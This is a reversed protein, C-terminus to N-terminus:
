KLEHRSSEQRQAEKEEKWKQEIRDMRTVLEDRKTEIVEAFRVTEDRLAQEEKLRAKSKELLKEIQRKM